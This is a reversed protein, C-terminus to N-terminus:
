PAIIHVPFKSCGDRLKMDGKRLGIYRCRKEFADKADLLKPKATGLKSSYEQARTSWSANRSEWSQWLSLILWEERCKRWPTPTEIRHLNWSRLRELSHTFDSWNCEHKLQFSLSGNSSLVEVVKDARDALAKQWSPTFPAEDCKKNSLKTALPKNKVRSILKAHTAAIVELYKAYVPDIIEESMPADVPLITVADVLRVSGDARHIEILCARPGTQSSVSVYQNHEEAIDPFFANKLLRVKRAKPDLEAM